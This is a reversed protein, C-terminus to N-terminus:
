SYLLITQLLLPLEPRSQVIECQQCVEASPKKCCGQKACDNVLDIGVHIAEKMQLYQAIKNEAEQLQEELVERIAFAAEKGTSKGRRITFLDRIRTLSFDLHQLTQVMQIKKLEKDSYLRFGGKSRTIPEIIGLEEYYRITRASTRLKKALEGIKMLHKDAMVGKERM